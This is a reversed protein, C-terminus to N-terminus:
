AMEECDISMEVNQTAEVMLEGETRGFIQMMRNQYEHRNWRYVWFYGTKGVSMSVNRGRYPHKFRRTM